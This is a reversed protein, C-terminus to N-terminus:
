ELIDGKEIKRGRIFDAASMKSKGEPIVSSILLSGEGCAVTINGGDLSIVEGARGASSVPRAKCIKLM